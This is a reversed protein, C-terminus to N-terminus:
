STGEVDTSDDGEEKDRIGVDYGQLWSEVDEISPAPTRDGGSMAQCHGALWSATSAGTNETM